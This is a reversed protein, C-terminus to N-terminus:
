RHVEDGFPDVFRMGQGLRPLDKATPLEKLPKRWIALLSSLLVRDEEKSGDHSGDSSDFRHHASPVMEFHDLASMQSPNAGRPSTSGSMVSAPRPSRSGDSKKLQVGGGGSGALVDPNSSKKKKGTTM